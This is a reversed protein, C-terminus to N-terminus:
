SSFLGSWPPSAAAPPLLLGAITQAVGAHGAASASNQAHAPDLILSALQILASATEGAYGELSARSEMPDDYLDFIRADIMDTLVNVPLNHAKVGDLLRRPSRIARVAQAPQIRLCM